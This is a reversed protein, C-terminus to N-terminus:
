EYTVDCAGFKECYEQNNFNPTSFADASFLTNELLQLIGWISVAVFLIIIGWGASSKFKEKNIANKGEGDFIGFSGLINYMFFVVAITILTPTVLDVITVIRNVLEGFTRPAALAVTPLSIGLFFVLISQLLKM